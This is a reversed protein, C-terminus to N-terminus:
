WPRRFSKVLPPRQPIKAFKEWPPWFHNFKNKEWEFSFFFKKASFKLIWPPKGERVGKRREHTSRWLLECSCFYLTTCEFLATFCVVSRHPLECISFIVARIDRRIASSCLLYAAPITSVMPQCNAVRQVLRCL